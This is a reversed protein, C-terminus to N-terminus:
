FEDVNKSLDNNSSNLTLIFLLKLFGSLDILSIIWLLLSLKRLKTLNFVNTLDVDIITKDNLLIEEIDENVELFEEGVKTKYKIKVKEGM